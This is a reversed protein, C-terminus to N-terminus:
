TRAPATEEKGQVHTEDILRAEDQLVQVERFRIPFYLAEPENAAMEQLNRVLAFIDEFRQRGRRRAAELQVEDETKLGKVAGREIAARMPGTDDALDDLEVIAALFGRLAEIIAANREDEPAKAGEVSLYQLEAGACRMLRALKAFREKEDAM